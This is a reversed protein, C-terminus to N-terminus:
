FIWLPLVNEMCTLVNLTGRKKNLAFRSFSERRRAHFIRTIEVIQLSFKLYIKLLMYMRPLTVFIVYITSPTVFFDFIHYHLFTYRFPILFFYCLLPLYIYLIPFTPIFTQKQLFVM